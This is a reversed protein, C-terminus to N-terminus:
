RQEVAEYFKESVKMLRTELDRCVNRYHEIRGMVTGREKTKNALQVAVPVEEKALAPEFSSKYKQYDEPSMIQQLFAILWDLTGAPFGHVSGSAAADLLGVPLPQNLPPVNQPTGTPHVTKSNQRQPRHTPNTPATRQTLRGLPGALFSDPQPPVFGKPCGCRFCRTKVPWVREQGCAQFTLRNRVIVSREEESDDVAAYHTMIGLVLTVLPLLDGVVTHDHVRHVVTNGDVGKLFITKVVCSGPPVLAVSQESRCFKEANLFANVGVPVDVRGSAKGKGLYLCGDTDHGDKGKFSVCEYVEALTLAQLLPDDNNKRTGCFASPKKWKGSGSWPSELSRLFEFGADDFWCVVAAVGLVGFVVELLTWRFAFVHCVVLVM